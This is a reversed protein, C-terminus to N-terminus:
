VVEFVGRQKLQIFKSNFLRDPVKKKLLEFFNRDHTTIVIQKDLSFSINRLLDIMSLINIDDLAQIPDDIFICNLDKGTDTKAYLAKALFICFSLINIQATSFYLNPVISDKGDKVSNMLINLKPAKYKFDCEFRIKKYEPHPDIINYLYNILDLQFYHSVYDHLYLELNNKELELLNKQESLAIKNKVLGEYEKKYKENNNYKEGLELLSIYDLLITKRNELVKYNAIIEDQIEDFSNSIEDLKLNSYEIKMDIRHVLFLLTESLQKSMESWENELNTIKEEIAYEQNIDIKEKKLENVDLILQALSQECEQLKDKESDFQSQWLVLVDDNVIDLKSLYKFNIYFEFCEIKKIEDQQFQIKENLSSIQNNITSQDKNLQQKLKESAEIDFKLQNLQVEYSQRVDVETKDKIDSFKREITDLIFNLRESKVTNEKELSKFIEKKAKTQSILNTSELKVKNLLEDIAGALGEKEFEIDAILCEKKEIDEQISRSITTNRSISELLKEHDFFDQGCLPCIGNKLVSLIDRSQVIFNDLQSNFRSKNHINDNLKNLEGEKQSIQKQKEFISFNEADYLGEVIISKNNLLSNKIRDLNHSLSSFEQLKERCIELEKELNLKERGVLEQEKLLEAFDLFRDHLKAKKTIISEKSSTQAEIREIVSALETKKEEFLLVQGNNEVQYQQRKIFYSKRKEELDCYDTYNTILYSLREIVLKSKSISEEMTSRYMSLKKMKRIKELLGKQADVDYKKHNIDIGYAQLQKIPILNNHGLAIKNANDKLEQARQLENSIKNSLNDAEIQLSVLTDRTIVEEKILEQGWTNIILTIGKIRDFIEVNLKPDIMSKKERIERNLKPISKGLSTIKERIQQHYELLDKTEAFYNMFIKFRDVSSKTALFESFWDQSLIANQFYRNKTEGNLINIEDKPKCTFSEPDRDEFDIKLNVDENPLDNNHIFTLTNQEQDIKVNEDFNNHSVRQIKRTMCFELADLFSTKGFGNPAYLAIFNAAKDSDKKSALNIQEKKFLRFAEIKVNKIKM